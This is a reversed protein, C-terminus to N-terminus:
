QLLLIDEEDVELLKPLGNAAIKDNISKKVMWTVDAKGSTSLYYNDEFPLKAMTKLNFDFFNKDSKEWVPKFDHSRIGIATINKSLNKSFRFKKGWDVAEIVNESIYKIDSINKCGTLIATAKTKPNKFIEKTNGFNSVKGSDVVIMSDCFRYIEDRSHSVFIAIGAFDRLIRAIEEQIHDRLYTDLASFAEDFLLVQPNRILMRAMAVRSAQGGSIKAPLSNKISKLDFKELYEEAAMKEKKNLGIVINEYVSLHPFLAYNQFCYGIHRQQPLINVSEKTDFVTNDDLRIYGSDPKEIGAIMKLVMSKGAGSAGLIGIRKSDINCDIDLIFNNLKKKINLELM